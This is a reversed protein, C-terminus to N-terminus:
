NLNKKGKKKLKSGEKETNLKEYYLIEKKGNVFERIATLFAEGYKQYKNEGVGSVELMEEKCFPLKVCMDALTKDSAIIYPPM